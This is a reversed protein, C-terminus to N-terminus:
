RLAVVVPKSTSRAGTKIVRDGVRVQWSRTRPRGDFRGKLAGITLRGRRQAIRTLGYEGRLYDLNNGADDYITTRGTGPFVRLVSGELPIIAGARVFVPMRELPVTLKELAPGTHREGTFWDYWVGPPFWFEVEAPDGPSTVPAVLVDRGLAYESPHEYANEQRPWHLYLPRVMPVGTAVAAHALSYLYPVLAGRLRLFESAIEGPRGPYEWPLRRQHHSHLRLLPQFAGLQVWRVYMDEPLDNERPTLIPSQTKDCIGQPSVGHFTGIDHSVYPLGISAEAATFQSAFALLPWTACTDGTFQLTYRHEAFAGTGVAGSFGAQLSGGIRQFAPWRSGRARQRDFYLKNIWTDPTLGPAIASSGDCCWDLWWFDAGDKEFREHLAFYADLQKRDTWDFVMCLGNPDAQTVRCNPDETLGGGARAQTQEFAPDASDISPHVNLGAMLGQDHAWKLFGAPDPYLDRNWDWGNWSYQGGPAGAVQSAIAAGAPDHVAKFDTDLSITDLPLREDRFRKAIAKFDDASYPWYRSYWVGFARRPLLPAAGTLVRLDRLARAYDNGYAFLYLDQYKDGRSARPAFWDGTMLATTSDDLVYWGERSLVGEHLPRPGDVLDLSRRWGGLPAPNPGPAPNVVRRGIRVRLTDASFRRGRKWRLTVRSTRIVREGKRVSTRFRTRTRLRGATTQTRRNEFRGDDAFELRILSPTIVEFRAKGDKVARAHAGGPAVAVLATAVLM